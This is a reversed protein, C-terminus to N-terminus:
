NGNNKERLKAEIARAFERMPDGGYTNASKAIDEDTLGVWERKPPATDARCCGSRDCGDPSGCHGLVCNGDWAVPEQEIERSTEALGDLAVQKRLDLLKNHWRMARGNPDNCDADNCYPNDTIGMWSEPEQEIERKAPEGFNRSDKLAECTETRRCYKCNWTDSNTCQAVPEQEPQTTQCCGYCKNGMHMTPKGCDVCMKEQEIERGIDSMEQLTAAREAEAIAQRLDALAEYAVKIEGFAEARRLAELCDELAELGKKMADIM